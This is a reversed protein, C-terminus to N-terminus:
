VQYSVLVANETFWKYHEDSLYQDGDIVIIRYNEDVWVNTSLVTTNTYTLYGANASRISSFSQGNSTFSVSISFNSSYLEVKQNFRWTGTLTRKANEVFWKYFNMDVRQYYVQFDVYRYKEDTWVGRAGDYVMIKEGNEDTFYLNGDTSLTIKTYAESRSPYIEFYITTGKYSSTDIKKNFCWREKLSFVKYYVPSSAPSDYYNRAKAIVTIEYAGATNGIPSSVDYDQYYQNNALAAVLEGDVYIQFLEVRADRDEIKLISGDLSIRPAPLTEKPTEYAGVIVIKKGNYYATNQEKNDLFFGM